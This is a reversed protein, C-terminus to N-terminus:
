LKPNVEYVLRTLKKITQCTKYVDLGVGLTYTIVAAKMIHYSTNAIKYSGPRENPQQLYRNYFLEKVGYALAFVSASGITLTPIIRKRYNKKVVLYHSLGTFALLPYLKVSGPLYIQQLQIKQETKTDSDITIKLTSTELDCYTSNPLRIESDFIRKFQYANMLGKTDIEPFLKRELAIEKEVSISFYKKCFISYNGNLSIPKYVNSWDSIHTNVSKFLTANTSLTTNMNIEVSDKFDIYGNAEFKVKETLYDSDVIKETLYEALTPFSGIANAMIDNYTSGLYRYFHAKSEIVYIPLRANLQVETGKLLVKNNGILKNDLNWYNEKPYANYKADTSKLFLYDGNATLDFSNIFTNKAAFYNFGDSICVPLNWYSIERFTQLNNAILIGQGPIINTQTLKKIEPEYPINCEIGQGISTFFVLFSALLSIYKM